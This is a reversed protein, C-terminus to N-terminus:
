KSTSAQGSEKLDDPAVPYFITVEKFAHQPLKTLETWNKPDPPPTPINNWIMTVFVPQNKADAVCNALYRCVPPQAWKWGMSTWIINDLFMKRLKEHKFREWHDMKQMNPFEYLRTSGDEFTIIGTEHYNINRVGPSFLSWHQVWEFFVMAPWTYPTMKEKIPSEDQLWSVVVVMFFVAFASLCKKWTPDLAPRRPAVHKADDVTLNKPKESLDTDM